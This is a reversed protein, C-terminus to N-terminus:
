AREGACRREFSRREGTHSIRALAYAALTLRHKSQQTALGGLIERAFEAHREVLELAPTLLRFRRQIARQLLALRIRHATLEGRGHLPDALQAHLDLQETRADFAGDRQGAPPRPSPPSLMGSCRGGSRCRRPRGSRPPAATTRRHQGADTEGSSFARPTLGFHAGVAKSTTFQQPIDVTAQFTIAVVAGVGPVTTFRRCVPDHRVLDLLQRHLVAFQSRLAARAELLPRIIATLRPLGDVLQRVRADFAGASTPGVKLGFSRLLGRLDNEIARNQGQLLKRAALLTRKEQSAATKVHVPRYLGVRMMQAIGRADNRDTKNVQAALAAKMHRTEVCIVPLGAGGLGSFLWQSLPGAELGVRRCDITPATLIPVIAAPDSAVRIERVVNGIEDVICISTHRVSVDLGVYHAM